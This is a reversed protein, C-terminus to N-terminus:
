KFFIQTFYLVGNDNVITGIGTHTFDGEINLKHSPSNLWASVLRETTTYGFAVNEGYTHANETNFIIQARTQSNNHSILNDLSQNESHIIAEFNATENIILNNLGINSRHLNIANYIEFSIDEIDKEIIRNKEELTLDSIISTDSENENFTDFVSKVDENLDSDINEKSCSTLINIFVFVALLVSKISMMGTYIQM